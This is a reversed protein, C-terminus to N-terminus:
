RKTGKKAPKKRPLIERVRIRRAVPSVASLSMLFGDPWVWVDWERAKRKTKKKQPIVFQREDPYTVPYKPKRKTM